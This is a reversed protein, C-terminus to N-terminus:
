LSLFEFFVIQLSGSQDDDEVISPDKPLIEPAGYWKRLKPGGICVRLCVDCLHTNDMYKSEHSLYSSIYLTGEIYDLIQDMFGLKKKASCRGLARKEIDFKLSSCSSQYQHFLSRTNLFLSSSIISATTTTGAMSLGKRQECGVM